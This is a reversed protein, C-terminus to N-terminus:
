PEINKSTSPPEPPKRGLGLTRAIGPRHLVDKPTAMSLRPTLAVFQVSSASLNAMGLLSFLHAPFGLASPRKDADVPTSRRSATM